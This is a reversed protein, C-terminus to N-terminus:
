STIITFFFITEGFQIENKKDGPAYDPMLSLYNTIGM